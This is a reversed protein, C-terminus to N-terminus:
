LHQRRLKGGKKANSLLMGTMIILLLSPVPSPQQHIKAAPVSATVTEGAIFLPLLIRCIGYSLFAAATRLIVAPALSLKGRFIASIQMFVCAGGFSVLATVAPLLTMDGAPLTSVATVDLASCVLKASTYFERDTLKEILGAIEPLIGTSILLGSIVGFAIVAFCINCMSKGASAVCDSLMDSRLYVNAREPAGSGKRRLYFSLFAALLINAASSSVIILLGAKPSHFVPAAICGYIFAPGAGFCVGSLLQAEKKEIRGSTYSTLLMKAGIPYGAIASFIFIVFIDGDIGFLFRGAKHLIRGAASVTGSEMLIGSIATMAYLSPIVTLLCREISASVATKIPEGAFICLLASLILFASIFIEKTKKMIIVQYIM